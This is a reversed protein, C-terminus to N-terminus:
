DVLLVEMSHSGLESVYYEEAIYFLQEESPTPGDVLEQEPRLIYIEKGQDVLSGLDYHRKGAGEMKSGELDRNFELGQLTQQETASDVIAVHGGIVMIDSPKILKIDVKNAQNFKAVPTYKYENAPNDFCGKIGGTYIGKIQAKSLGTVLGVFSSCDEPGFVLEDKVQKHGGFQYTGFLIAGNESFYPAVEFQKSLTYNGNYNYYTAAGQTIKTEPTVGISHALSYLLVTSNGAAETGYFQTAESKNSLLPLKSHDNISNKLKNYFIGNQIDSILDRDNKIAETVYKEVMELQFHTKSSLIPFGIEGREKPDSLQKLSESYKQTVEKASALNNCWNQIMDKESLDPQNQLEKIILNKLYNQAKCTALMSTWINVVANGKPSLNAKYYKM